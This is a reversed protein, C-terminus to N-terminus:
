RTPADDREAAPGAGDGTQDDPFSAPLRRLKRNMSRVLLVTGILLLLVVVLGVPAAKGYEPGQGGPQQVDSQALVTTVDSALLALHAGIM